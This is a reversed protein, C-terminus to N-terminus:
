QHINNIRRGIEYVINTTVSNGCQKYLAVDGNVISARHYYEDHFGQLRFCEQPIIRRITVYHPVNDIFVDINASDTKTDSIDTIVYLDCHTDITPSVGHGVRGRRTTSNPLSFNIVDGVTALAYGQSTPEKIQIYKKNKQYNVQEIVRDIPFIKTRENGGLCGIVFVRQRNQPIGFCQSNLVQWEINYGLEVMSNLIALFDFGKNTSLMGTVNEYILWKPKNQKPIEQLLRFIERVLRSKNGNLGRREFNCLSFDTCPAGFCWIDAYPIDRAKVDCIDKRYWEGHLYKHQAIEAKRRQLKPISKIYSIEEDTCLHMAVYSDYANKDKECFGVCQHGAQEMGVRFGGIGAFWDIFKM